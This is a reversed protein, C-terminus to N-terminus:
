GRAAEEVTPAPAEAQWFETIPPRGRKVWLEHEKESGCARSPNRAVLEDAARFIARNEAGIRQVTDTDTVSIQPSVRRLLSKVEIEGFYLSRGFDSCSRKDGVKEARAHSAEVWNPGHNGSRYRQKVAIDVDGLDDTDSLYSGFVQVEEIFYVLEDNANIERVRALLQGVLEDAKARSIRKLLKAAILSTGLRTPTYRAPSRGPKKKELFGAKVLARLRKATTAESLKLWYAANEVLIFDGCRVLTRLMERVQRYNFDPIAPANWDFKM